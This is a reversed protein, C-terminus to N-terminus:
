AAPAQAKADAKAEELLQQIMKEQTDYRGEGFHTFRV